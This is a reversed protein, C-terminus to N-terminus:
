GKLKPCICDPCCILKDMTQAIREVRANDKKVSYIWDVLEKQEAGSLKQFNEYATPDDKLCLLFDDPVVTPLEESYLIIHVWDGENKGIKKRIEAKVPMFLTGNGMPMLHYNAIEYGDISGRVKVLGFWAHKNQVIEPIAAYTWGGKGAHKRLLYDQDVLPKEPSNLDM